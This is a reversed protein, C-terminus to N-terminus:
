ATMFDNTVRHADAERNDVEAHELLTQAMTRADEATIPEGAKWSEHTLNAIDDDSLGGVRGSREIEAVIRMAMAATREQPTRRTIPHEHEVDQRMVETFDESVYTQPKRFHLSQTWYIFKITGDDQGQTVYGRDTIARLAGSKFFAVIDEPYFSGELDVGAVIM